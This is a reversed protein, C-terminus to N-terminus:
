VVSKRNLSRVADEGSLGNEVARHVNNLFEGWNSLGGSEFGFKVGAKALRGPGKPIEVRQRLVRLPDPDADPSPAATRRPFNASLLVPVSEAKLRDAVLYAESGGAIIVRLNFEKALGLAREIERQTSAEMVVPQQRALVPLLAELSADFEPRQMGRPNRDYAAKEDRYHQADLLMQRLASFVGLLSNPYGGARLPTFGVHQAVSAKVVMAAVDDGALNIFASQGQFIGNAPASLAATIGAGYPGQFAEPDARLEDVVSVEPQLGPPYNSNPALNPRAPGQPAGGGRGRGGGGGGAGGGAEQGGSPLGLSGYADILGPYVSLGSGDIVRADAPVAVNAGVAAILGDRIVITGKEIPPGSVPVVRANTIAFTAPIQRKSAQAPVSSAAAVVM